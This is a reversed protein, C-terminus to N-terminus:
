RSVIPLRHIYINIGKEIYLLTTGTKVDEAVNINRLIHEVGELYRVERIWEELLEKHKEKAAAAAAAYNTYAAPYAEGNEVVVYIFEM